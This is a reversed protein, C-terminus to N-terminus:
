AGQLRAASERASELIEEEQPIVHNRMLIKGDCIVTHICSSDGSYVLNSILHYEPVLLFNNLDVLLCDALRGEEIVGADIGFAEAGGRTAIQFIEHAPLTEPSHSVHKALLAAMKMAEMMSLNNNSSCGDTGLAIRCGNKAVEQYHFAGSALKMNSTPMHSLIAGREQILGIDHGSLHVAHALITQDTLLGLSDLYSVPTMRHAKICDDVEQRTESLHIHLGLHYEEMKDKVKLLDETTVTYIAHPAFLLQIRDSYRDRNSLLEENELKMLLASNASSFSLLGIAARIGMEEVARVTETQYFYMDNFFVTGTRIMELIALRSGHYIDEKTLKGETPWIYQSLWQFLEFDDAYGRLLTMAAHTHSNYFPPIVALLSNADLVEDAPVDISDDIREFRKDRILIDKKACNLIVNKLLISSM